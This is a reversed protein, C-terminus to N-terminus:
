QKPKRSAIARGISAGLAGTFLGYFLICFVFQVFFTGIVARIGNEAYYDTAQRGTGIFALTVAPVLVGLLAGCITGSTSGAGPVHKM